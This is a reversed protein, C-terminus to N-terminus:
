RSAYALPADISPARERIRASLKRGYAMCPKELLFYSAVACCMALALNWPFKQFGRPGEWGSILFMQQWLYLSYSIRGVFRVAPHDLARSIMWEPHLVTGALAMPILIALWLSTLQSYLAICALAIIVAAYFKWPRFLARLKERTADDHLLFAATCGWLLADLRLDTRFHTPVLPLWKESIHNQADAVRWLGCGIAIWAVINARRSPNGRAALIASLLLPWFLYFHEEVALSWLHKTAITGDPDPIYNRFFFISSFVELRGHLGLVIAVVILYAFCPPLIRFARRVYFGAFSLNGYRRHEDLLLKTIILGSIGFFIDVGFGGFRSLSDRYYGAETAYFGPMLHGWIVILVAVARWGDLTPVRDRM